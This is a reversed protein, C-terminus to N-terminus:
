VNPVEVTRVDQVRVIRLGQPDDVYNVGLNDCLAEAKKRDMPFIESNYDGYTVKDGPKLLEAMPIGIGGQVVFNGAALVIGVNSHQRYKAATILGSKKSRTSGDELIETNPDDSIRMVLIRDMIPKASGYTREPYKKAQEAKVAPSETSESLYNKRHDTISFGVDLTEQAAVPTLDPLHNGAERQSQYSDYESQSLGYKEYVEAVTMYIMDNEFGTINSSAGAFQATPCGRALVDGGNNM